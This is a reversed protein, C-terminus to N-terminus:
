PVGSIIYIFYGNIARHGWGLRSPFARSGCGPSLGAPLYCSQEAGEEGQSRYRWVARGPATASRPALRRPVPVTRGDIAGSGPKGLRSSVVSESGRFLPHQCLPFHPSLAPETVAGPAPYHPGSLGPREKSGGDPTPEGLVGHLRCCYLHTPGLPLVARVVPSVDRHTNIGSGPEWLGCAAVPGDSSGTRGPAGHRRVLWVRGPRPGARPVAAAAAGASPRAPCQRPGATRVAAVVSSVPGQPQRVRRSARGCHLEPCRPATCLRGSAASGGPGAGVGGRARPGSAPPFPGPRHRNHLM